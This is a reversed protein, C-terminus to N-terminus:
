EFGSPNRTMYDRKMASRKWRRPLSARKSDDNFYTISPFQPISLNQCENVPTVFLKERKSLTVRHCSTTEHVIRFNSSSFNSFFTYDRGILTIINNQIDNSYSLFSSVLPLSPSYHFSSFSRCSRRFLSILHDPCYYQVVRVM